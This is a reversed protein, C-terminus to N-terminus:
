AWRSGVEGARGMPDNSRPQITVADARPRMGHADRNAV